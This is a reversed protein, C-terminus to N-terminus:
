DALFEATRAFVTTRESDITVRHGSAELWLLQKRAAGAHEYIYAGSEARVTHDRRSQVVLLPQRVKPLAAKLRRIVALLEHISLMPMRDYCVNCDAPIDPLRKRHRPVYQGVAAARPPLLHLRNEERLFIPASLSVIRHVDRVTGLLMALLAGMSLGVVSIRGCGGRLIEYGDLVSHFWDEATTRALDEPTTGHGALRGGLVTYGQQQLYQGLLRMESPSGTFGHVLLVGHEGGPLFFPEAGPLLM